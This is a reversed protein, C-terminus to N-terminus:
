ELESGLNQRWLPRLEALLFALVMVATGAIQVPTFRDSHLWCGFLIAFLPETVIIVATEVASLRQQVFTQVFFGIATALVGTILIAIWVENSPWELPAGCVASEGVAAAGCVIAVALLQVLTLAAADHQPAHHEMLAVHLGYCAACGLTLVDGWNIGELGGLSLMTLGGLSMGIALWHVISTRVGFLARGALPTFVIFLGTILGGNSATTFLLGYTQFLYAAALLVGLMTGVAWVGRRLRRVALPALVAAGILFRIALFPLVDYQDVADKVVVFTWGWVAVVALMMASCIARQM